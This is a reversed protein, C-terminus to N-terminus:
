APTVLDTSDRGELCTTTPELGMERELQNNVLISGLKNVVDNSPKRKGNTIMTMYARSVGLQRALGAKIM